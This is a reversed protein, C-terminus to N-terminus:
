MQQWALQWGHSIEDRGPMPVGPKNDRQGVAMLRIPLTERSQASVVRDARLYVRGSTPEIMEVFAYVLDGIQLPQGDILQPTIVEFVYMQGEKMRDQSFTRTQVAPKPWHHQALSSEASVVKAAAVGVSVAQQASAARLNAPPVATSPAARDDSVLLVTSGAPAPAPVEPVSESEVEPHPTELTTLVAQRETASLAPGRQTLALITQSPLLYDYAAPRTLLEKYALAQYVYQQTEARAFPLLLPHEAPFQKALQAIYTPGANYASAALMWSGTQRHLEWLYQCAANTAKRVDYREDHRRRVRLGMRRATQPMLQWIGAAGKRSVANRKLESEVLALYKLDRPIGHRDLIPEIIPFLVAAQRQVTLLENASRARRVVTRQWRQSVTPLYLPLQEGCFRIDEDAPAVARAPPAAQIVPHQLLGLGAATALLIHKM